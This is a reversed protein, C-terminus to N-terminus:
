GETEGLKMRWLHDDAHYFVTNNLDDVCLQAWCMESVLVQRLARNSPEFSVIDMFTEGDSSSLGVRFPLDQDVHGSTTLISSSAAAVSTVFADTLVLDM